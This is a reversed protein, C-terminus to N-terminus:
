SKEETNQNPNGGFVSASEVLSAGALCYLLLRTDGYVRDRVLQWAAPTVVGETAALEFVLWGGPKLTGARVIEHLCHELWRRSGDRDYPPDALIIDFPEGALGHTLFRLADAAVCRLPGQKALAADGCLASVNTRLAALARFDKEVWWVAAAGRSWAELGLAGTGAFLDLVRAGAVVGGLMSFLAQRVKDQTPRLATKPVNLTRGALKGGTIRM